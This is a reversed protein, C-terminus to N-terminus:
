ADLKHNGISFAISATEGTRSKVRCEFRYLKPELPPLEVFLPRTAAYFGDLTEGAIVRQRPQRTSASLTLNWSIQRLDGGAMLGVRYQPPLTHSDHGTTVTLPLVVDIERGDVITRTRAVIGIDEPRIGVDRLLGLDWRYASGDPPRISDLRYFKRPQLSEARLRVEKRQGPWTVGLFSLEAKFRDVATTVSVLRLLPNAVTRIFQGECRDGRPKYGNKDSPLCPLSLDCHKSEECPTKGGLATKLTAGALSILVLRRRM